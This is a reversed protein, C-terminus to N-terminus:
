LSRFITYDFVGTAVTAIEYAMSGLSRSDGFRHSRGQQDQVCRPLRALAWGDGLASSAQSGFTFRRTTAFREEM